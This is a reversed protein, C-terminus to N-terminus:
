CNVRIKNISFNNIYKINESGTITRKKEDLSVKIKYNVQQQWYEHGPAGSGTRYVNPTPLKEELQRFKDVYDGKTQEVQATAPLAICAALMLGWIRM